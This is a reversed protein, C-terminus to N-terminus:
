APYLGGNKEVLVGDRLWGDIGAVSGHSVRIANRTLGPYKRIFEFVGKRRVGRARDKALREAEREDREAIIEM